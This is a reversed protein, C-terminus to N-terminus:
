NPSSDKEYLATSLPWVLGLWLCGQSRQLFSESGGWVLFVISLLVAMSTHYRTMRWILTAGLVIILILGGPGHLIFEELFQNHLNYRNKLAMSLAREEYCGKLAGRLKTEGIGRFRAVSALEGGCRWVERRVLVSSRWEKDPWRGRLEQLAEVIRPTVLVVAPLLLFLWLAHRSSLWSMLRRRLSNRYLMFVGGIATAAWVAKSALLILSLSYLPLRLGLHRYSLIENFMVTYVLVSLYGAHMFWSFDSHILNEPQLTNFFSWVARSFSLVLSFDLGARLANWIRQREYDMLSTGCVFFLGLWLGARTELTIVLGPLDKFVFLYILCLYVLLIIGFILPASAFNISLTGSCLSLVWFIIVAVALMGMWPPNFPLLFGTLMLLGCLGSRFIGSLM